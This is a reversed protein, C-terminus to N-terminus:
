RTMCFTGKKKLKLGVKEFHRHVGSLTLSLSFFVNFPKSFMWLYLLKLLANGVNLKLEAVNSCILIRNKIELLQATMCVINHEIM